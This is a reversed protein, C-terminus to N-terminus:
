CTSQLYRLIREVTNNVVAAGRTPCIKYLQYSFIKNKGVLAKSITQADILVLSDYYMM